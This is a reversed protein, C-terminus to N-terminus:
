LANLVKKILYDKPKVGVIRDIEKGNKLLILTPINRVSFKASLQQYEEVNVKCIRAKTGVEDAVENLIPAMMKCPMCWSAWFDILVVGSKTQNQFNTPNLIVLNSSEPVEPMNKLKRAALYLYVIAAVIVLLVITITISTM